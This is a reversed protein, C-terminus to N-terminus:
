IKITNIKRAKYNYIARQEPVESNIFLSILLTKSFENLYM